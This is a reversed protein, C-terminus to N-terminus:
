AHVMERAVPLFRPAQVGLVEFLRAPSLAPDGLDKPDALSGDTLPQCSGTIGTGVNDPPPRWRSRRGASAGSSFGLLSKPWLEVPDFLAM